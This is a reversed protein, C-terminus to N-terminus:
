NSNPKRGSIQNKYVEIMDVLYYIDRNAIEISDVLNDNKLAGIAERLEGTGLKAKLEEGVRTRLEGFLLFPIGSEIAKKMAIVVANYIKQQTSENSSM